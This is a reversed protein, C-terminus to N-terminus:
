PRTTDFWGGAPCNITVKNTATTLPVTGGAEGEFFGLLPNTQGNWAGAAAVIYAVVYKFTPLTDAGATWEVTASSFKYGKTIETFVISSLAQGGATYGTTGGGTIENASVDAWTANTDQNPTYGAGVLAFKIVASDVDGGALTRPSQDYFQWTGAAM